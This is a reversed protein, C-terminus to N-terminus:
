VMICIICCQMSIVRNVSMMSTFRVVIGLTHVCITIIGSSNVYRAQILTMKAQNSHNGGATEEVNIKLYNQDPSSSAYVYWEGLFQFTSPLSISRIISQIMKYDVLILSTDLLTVFNTSITFLIYQFYALM